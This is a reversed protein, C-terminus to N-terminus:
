KRAEEAVCCHVFVVISVSYPTQIKKKNWNTGCSYILLQNKMVVRCQMCVAVACLGHCTESASHRWM